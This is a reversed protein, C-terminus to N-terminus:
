KACGVPSQTGGFGTALEWVSVVVGLGVVRNEDKGSGVLDIRGLAQGKSSNALDVVRVQGAWDLRELSLDLVLIMVKPFIYNVICAFASM